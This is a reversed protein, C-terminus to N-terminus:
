YVEESNVHLIAENLKYGHWQIFIDRQKLSFNYFKDSAEKCLLTAYERKKYEDIWPSCMVEVFTLVAETKSTEESQLSEVEKDIWQYLSSKLASYGDTDKIFHLFEFVTFFNLAESKDRCRKWFDILVKPSIQNRQMMIKEVELVNLLEMMNSPKPTANLFLTRIEDSIKEDLKEICYQPFKSSKTFEGTEYIGRVFFQLKGIISVTKVSTGMRTDCCLFYFLIEIINICFDIFEHEYRGKIKLGHESIDGFEAAKAYQGYLVNFEDLLRMLRVQIIGLLFSTIDKYKLEKGCARLINRVENVFTKFDIKTPTDILKDQMKVFGRFTRLRNEFREDILKLLQQKAISIGELFPRETFNIIKDKKIRLGYGSLTEWYAFFFMSKVTKDRFFLFGDDVYRYFVYDNNRSIGQEELKREVDADIRQLIIEAYIRSFEPGIVIGKAENQFDHQLQCFESAVSGPCDQDDHLFMARSLSEPSINDFCHELDLKTMMPFKKEARLFRYDGYFLNINRYHRYVFFHKLSEHTDVPTADDSFTKYYGKQKKQCSAVKYPYRISFNSRQCFDILLMKYKDYFEVMKVQHFPHIVSLRRGDEHGDKTITYQFCPRSTGKKGGLLLLFEKLGPEDTHKTAVLADDQCIVGYYKLFRAFFRNTFFVPREYPLVDSVVARYKSNSVRLLKSM